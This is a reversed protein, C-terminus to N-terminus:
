EGFSQYEFIIKVKVVPDTRHEQLIQPLNFVNDRRPANAMSHHIQPSRDIQEMDIALYDQNLQRRLLTGRREQKAFQRVVDKKNSSRYIRKILKHAREGKLSNSTLM